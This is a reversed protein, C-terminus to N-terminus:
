KNTTTKANKRGKKVLLAAPQRTAMFIKPVALELASRISWQNPLGVYDAIVTVENGNLDTHIIKMSSM